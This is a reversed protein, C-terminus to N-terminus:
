MVESAIIVSSYGRNVLDEHLNQAKSKNNFSWAGTIKQSRFGKFTIVTYIFKM